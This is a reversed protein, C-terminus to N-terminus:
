SDIQQSIIRLRKQSRMMRKMIQMISTLDLYEQWTVMMLLDRQGQTLFTLRMQLKKDGKEISQNQTINEMNM